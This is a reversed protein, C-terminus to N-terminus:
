RKVGLLGILLFMGMLVGTSPEPVQTEYEVLYGHDANFFTNPLDNWAWPGDELPDRVYEVFDEGPVFENPEGTHWFTFGLPEGTVWAFTGEQAQDTLGIWIRKVPSPQIINALLFANEDTDAITVLHGAVGLFSRAQANSDSLLWTHSDLVLEYYNGNGGTAPDWLVPSATAQAIVVLLLIQHVLISFLCGLPSYGRMTVELPCPGRRKGRFWIAVNAIRTLDRFGNPRAIAVMMVNDRGM